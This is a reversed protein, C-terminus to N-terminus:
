RQYFPVRLERVREVTKEALCGYAWVLRGSGGPRGVVDWCEADRYAEWAKQSAVIADPWSPATQNGGGPATKEAVTAADLVRRYIQDLEATAARFLDQACQRQELTTNLDLCAKVRDDDATAPGALCLLAAIGCLGALGRDFAKTLDAWHESRRRM